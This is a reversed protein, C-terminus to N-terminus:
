PVRKELANRLKQGLRHGMGTAAEKAPQELYKAQTPPKHRVDLREHVYIAYPAAPGGYGLTVTIAGGQEEPPRVHGSTKLASTDVPVIEKSAGMIAEAEQYLAARLAQRVKPGLRSLKAMAKDVGKVEIRIADAM